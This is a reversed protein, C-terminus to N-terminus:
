PALAGKWWYRIYYVTSNYTTSSTGYIVQTSSEPLYIGETNWNAANNNQANYKLPVTKGPKHQWYGTSMLKMLHFDNPATRICIASEASQLSAPTPRTTTKIADYGLADLDAIIWDALVSVSLSNSYTGGSFHGPNAFLGSIGLAYGYCNQNYYSDNWVSGPLTNWQLQSSVSSPITITARLRSPVSPSYPSPFGYYARVVASVQDAFYLSDPSNFINPASPSEETRAVIEAAFTGVGAWGAFAAPVEVGSDSLFALLEAETLTSLLPVEETDPLALAYPYSNASVFLFAV